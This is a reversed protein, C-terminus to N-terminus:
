CDGPRSITVAWCGREANHVHIRETRDDGLFREVIGDLDEGDVLVADIMQETEDFARVSLRRRRLQKPIAGLDAPPACPARHLFIPSASRYPTTGDFPDHSVLILEDGVRADELCRRCPFGPHEDAVHVAGGAARHRDAEDASIPELTFTNTTM